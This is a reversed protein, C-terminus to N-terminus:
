PSAPRRSKVRWGALHPTTDAKFGYLSLRSPNISEGMIVVVTVPEADLPTQPQTQGIVNLNDAAVHTLGMRVAGVAAQFPGYMSATHKGPFAADIRPHLM